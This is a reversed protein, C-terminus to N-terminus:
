GKGLSLDLTWCGRVHPGPQRCHSLIDPDACGASELADAMAPLRDFAQEEYIAQALALVPPTRWAPDFRVPRFPLPGFLDRLIQSQFLEEEAQTGRPHWTAAWTALNATEEPGSEHLRAAAWKMEFEAELRKASRALFEADPGPESDAAQRAMWTATWSEQVARQASAEALLLEDESSRGDAYSENVEVARRSREDTLFRWVHRCCVVAFLRFKRDNRKDRLGELMLRPNTCVQWEAETM